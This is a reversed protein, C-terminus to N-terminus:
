SKGEPGPRPTGITFFTETKVSFLFLCTWSCIKFLCMQPILYHHEYSGCWFFFQPQLYLVAPLSSEKCAVLRARIRPVAYARGLRAM